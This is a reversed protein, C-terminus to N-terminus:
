WKCNKTCLFSRKLEGHENRRYRRVLCEKGGLVDLLETGPIIHRTRKAAREAHFFKYLRSLLEENKVQAGNLFTLSEMVNM